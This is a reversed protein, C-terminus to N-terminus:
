FDGTVSDCVYKANARVSDMNRTSSGVPSIIKEIESADAKEESSLYLDEYTPHPDEGAPKSCDLVSGAGMISVNVIGTVSETFFYVFSGDIRIMLAHDMTYVPKLMNWFGSIGSEVRKRKLVCLFVHLATYKNKICYYKSASNVIGAIPTFDFGPM